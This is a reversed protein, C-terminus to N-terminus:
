CMNKLKNYLNVKSIIENYVNKKKKAYVAQGFLRKFVSFTYEVVWRRSYKNEKMWKEQDKLQKTAVKTRRMQKTIRKRKRKLYNSNEPKKTIANKRIRIIQKINMDNLMEFINYTDYGGDALIEKIPQNQNKITQELLSKFCKIEHVKDDVVSVGTIEGTSVDVAFVIKIFGNRTIIKGKKHKYRLWEGRDTTNMGSGDIANFTVKKKRKINKLILELKNMRRCITTYDPVKIKVVKSFFLLCFAQLKRYDMKFYNKFDILLEIIDNSYKFKRGQKKRNLSKLRQEELSFLDKNILIEIQKTKAYNIKKWNRKNVKKNNINNM